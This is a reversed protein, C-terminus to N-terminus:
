WSMVGRFREWKWSRTWCCIVSRLCDFNIYLLHCDNITKILELIKKLVNIKKLLVNRDFFNM